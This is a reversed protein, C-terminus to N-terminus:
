YNGSPATQGALLEGYVTLIQERGNGTGEVSDGRRNGWNESHSRNQALRYNLLAGNPGTLSRNLTTAGVATGANLGVRYDTRNTCGVLISSTVNIVSGSYTGFAMDTASVSCFDLVNATVRIRATQSQVARSSLTAVINDNYGRDAAPFQNGPVLGYVTLFQDSGTGIGVVWGTGPTNGWNATYSANSYLGYQLRDSGASMSRNSVTAGQGTGADLGITYLVGLPCSVTLTGTVRITSETYNGFNINTARFSCRQAAAFGGGCALLVLFAAKYRTIM